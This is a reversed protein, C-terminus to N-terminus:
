PTIKVKTKNLCRPSSNRPEFPDLVVVLVFPAQRDDEQVTTPLENKPGQCGKKAKKLTKKQFM